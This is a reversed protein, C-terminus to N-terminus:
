PIAEAHMSHVQPPVQPSLKSLPSSELRKSFTPAIRLHAVKDLMARLQEVLTSVESLRDSLSTERDGQAGSSAQVQELSRELSRAFRKLVPILGAFADPVPRRQHEGDACNRVFRKLKSVSWSHTSWQALAEQRQTPDGLAAVVTLHTWCLRAGASSKMTAVAAFAQKTPWARCVAAAAYLTSTSQSIAKALRKVGRAGYRDRDSEVRQVIEGVQWQLTLDHKLQRDHLERVKYAEQEIAASVDAGEAEGAKCKASRRVRSLSAGGANSGGAKPSRQYKPSTSPSPNAAANTEGKRHAGASAEVPPEPISAVQETLMVGAEVLMRRINSANDSLVSYNGCRSRRLLGVSVLRDLLEGAAETDIDLDRGADDRSVDSTNCLRQFFANMRENVDTM